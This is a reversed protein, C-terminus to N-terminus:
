LGSEGTRFPASCETQHVDLPAAIAQAPRTKTHCGDPAHQSISAAFQQMNFVIYVDLGVNSDRKHEVILNTVYRYYAMPDISNLTSKKKLGLSQTPSLPLSTLYVAESFTSAGSGVLIAHRWM